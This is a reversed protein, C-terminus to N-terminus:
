IVFPQLCLGSIHVLFLSPNYVDGLYTYLGEANLYKFISGDFLHVDGSDKLGKNSQLHYFPHEKDSGFSSMFFFSFIM